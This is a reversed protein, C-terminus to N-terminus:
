RRRGYAIERLRRHTMKHNDIEADTARCWGRQQLTTWLARAEDLMMSRDIRETPSIVALVDVYNDFVL